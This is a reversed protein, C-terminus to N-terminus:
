APRVLDHSRATTASPQLDGGLAAEGREDTPVALERGQELEELVHLASPALDHVQDSLGPDPLRSQRDLEPLRQGLGALVDVPECAAADPEPLQDGEQRDDILEALIEPDLLEVALGLDDGLHLVAHAAHALDIRVDREHARQETDIGAIRGDAGHFGERSAALDEVGHSRQRY